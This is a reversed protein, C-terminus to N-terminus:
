LAFYFNFILIFIFFMCSAKNLAEQNEELKKEFYQIKIEQESLNQM